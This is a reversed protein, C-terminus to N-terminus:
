VNALADLSSLLSTFIIKKLIDSSIQIAEIVKETGHGEADPALYKIMLACTFLTIPMLFFYYTFHSCFETSWNLTKLFVTTSLGVIAGTATALVFWKLISFFIVSQETLRRRM